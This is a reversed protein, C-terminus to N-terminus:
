WLSFNSFNLQDHRVELQKKMKKESAMFDCMTFQKETVHRGYKEERKRDSMVSVGDIM